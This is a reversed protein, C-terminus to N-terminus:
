LLLIHESSSLRRRELGQKRLGPLLLMFICPDAVSLECSHRTYLPCQDCPTKVHLSVVSRHCPQSCSRLCTLASEAPLGLKTPLELDDLSQQAWASAFWCPARCQCGKLPKGATLLSQEAEEEGERDGIRETKPFAQNAQSRWHDSHQGCGIENMGEMGCNALLGWNALGMRRQYLMPLQLSSLHEQCM